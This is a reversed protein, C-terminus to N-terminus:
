PGWGLFIFGSLDWCISVWAHCLWKAKRGHPSADWFDSDIEVTALTFHFSFGAPQGHDGNLRTVDPHHPWGHYRYFSCRRSTPHSLGRVGPPGRCNCLSSLCFFCIWFLSLGKTVIVIGNLQETSADGMRHFTLHSMQGTNLMSQAPLRHKCRASGAQM